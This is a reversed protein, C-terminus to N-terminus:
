DTASKLLIPRRREAHGSLDIAAGHGISGFDLCTRAAAQAAACLAHRPNEGELLGLLTRAIFTDGAGLTDVPEVPEAAITFLGDRGALAAGRAGLTALAWRAGAELLETAVSQAGNEDLDSASISVLFCHPAISRWHEPDRRTSFDYSLLTRRAAEPAYADLGSSQGIHVADFAELYQFDEVAPTFMSVGLDWSLFVREAGRHGIVCYATPGDILRLRSVDVREVILAQQIVEGARDNGIAGIYAAGAGFRRAQVALNLCNGGPFMEGRAIYCDVVNDGMAVIKVM